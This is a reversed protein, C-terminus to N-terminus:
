HAVFYPLKYTQKCMGWISPLPKSNVQIALVCVRMNVKFVVDTFVM